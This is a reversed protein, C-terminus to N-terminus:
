PVGGVPFSHGPLLKYWDCIECSWYLLGDPGDVIDIDQGCVPCEFIGACVPKKPAEKIEHGMGDVSAAVHRCIEVNSM